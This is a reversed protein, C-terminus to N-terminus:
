KKETNRRKRCDYIKRVKKKCCFFVIGRKSGNDYLRLTKVQGDSILKKREEKCFTRAQLERISITDINENIVASLIKFRTSLSRLLSLKYIMDKIKVGVVHLQKHTRAMDHVHPRADDGDALRLTLMKEYVHIRNVTSPEDFTGKLKKWADRTTTCDEVHVM